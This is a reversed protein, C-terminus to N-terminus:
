NSIWLWQCCGVLIRQETDVCLAHLMGPLNKIPAVDQQLVLFVLNTQSPNSSPDMLCTLALIASTIVPKMFLTDIIVQIHNNLPSPGDISIGLHLLLFATYQM